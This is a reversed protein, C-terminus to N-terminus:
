LEKLGEGPIYEDGCTSQMVLAVQERDNTLDLIYSRICELSDTLGEADDKLSQIEKKKRLVETPDNGSYAALEKDLSATEKLLREHAELLAQRDMGNDELMEDDEDRQATEEIIHKKIESISTKLKTEEAQLGHLVKEKSQKADSVFAWYWNGSGIKEVKILGEDSLAQLYDKVVMGSISAVAPLAKELDKFSHVSLSKHFWDLILAQKAAPPASKPAALEGDDAAEELDEERILFGRDDGCRCSRFWLPEREDFELDDLDVIEVGTRFGNKQQAGFEGTQQPQLALERDYDERLKPTSIISYAKTIQDVTYASSPQKNTAKTSGHEPSCVQQVKDPHHQLLSKRYAAKLLEKWTQIMQPMELMAQRRKELRGKMQRESEKGKVREGVGTGKVRLGNEERRRLREASSKVSFPMLDEVGHRQALKVLDAQRRLSFVPDHWKGTISHKHAKFPSPAAEQTSEGTAPAQSSSEGQSPLIAAPPYRAFFRTLRPPLAQALQIHKATSAM